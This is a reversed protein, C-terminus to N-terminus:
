PIQPSYRRAEGRRGRTGAAFRVRPKLTVRTMWFKGSRREGSLGVADDEYSNWRSGSARASRSSPSCTARRSRRSSRRRRISATPMARSRRRAPAPLSSRATRSGCRMRATTPTTPSTPARASGSSPPTINPCEDEDRGDERSDLSASSSALRSALQQIWLRRLGLARGFLQARRPAHRQRSIVM